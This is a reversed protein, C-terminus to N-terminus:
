AADQARAQEALRQNAAQLLALRDEPRRLGDPLEDGRRSGLAAEETADQAQAQQLLADIEARLRQEEKKMYGYSMAKHRSANGQIKTGDIALNGLQVLGAAAALRLVAVFVDAFADLHIKRFDSITRFDPRDAGVIALFALNRECALAIKRSAFVGVCYAYLLLCVM